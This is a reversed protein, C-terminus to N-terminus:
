AQIRGERDEASGDRAVSRCPRSYESLGTAAARSKGMEVPNSLRTNIEPLCRSEMSDGKKTKSIFGSEFLDLMTQFDRLITGPGEMSIKQNGLTQCCTERAKNLQKLHSSYIM